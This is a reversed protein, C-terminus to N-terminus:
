IGGLRAASAAAAGRGEATGACVYSQDLHKTRKLACAPGRGGGESHGPREVVAALLLVGAGIRMLLEAPVPFHAAGGSGLLKCAALRAEKVFIFQFSKKKKRPVKNKEAIAKSKVAAARAEEM